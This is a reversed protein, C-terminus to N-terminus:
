VWVVMLKNSEACKLVQLKVTLEKPNIELKNFSYGHKVWQNMVFGILMGLTFPSRM